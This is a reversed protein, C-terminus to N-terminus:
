KHMSIRYRRLYINTHRAKQWMETPRKNRINFYSILLSHMQIRHYQALHWLRCVLLGNRITDLDIIHALLLQFCVMENNFNVTPLQSHLQYHQKNSILLLIFSFWRKLSISIIADVMIVVTIAYEQGRATFQSCSLNTLGLIYSTRMGKLYLV